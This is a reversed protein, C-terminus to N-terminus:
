WLARRDQRRQGLSGHVPRQQGALEQQGRLRDHHEAVWRRVQAMEYRRATVASAPDDPHSFM